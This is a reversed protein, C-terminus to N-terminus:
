WSAVTAIIKAVDDPTQHGFVDSPTKDLDVFSGDKGHWIAVEADPSSHEMSSTRWADYNEYSTGDDNYRRSCYNGGGFQVSVTYGNAFVIQFGRNRQCRFM